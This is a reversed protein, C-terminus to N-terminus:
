GSKLKLRSFPNNEKEMVEEICPAKEFEVSYLCSEM